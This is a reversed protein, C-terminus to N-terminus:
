NGGSWKLFDIASKIDFGRRGIQKIINELLEVKEQQLAIKLNTAIIEPDGDLYMPVETKIIMGRPPHEWGLAQSEKSPGLTYFEYKLLKLRKAEQEYKRLLLREESYMKMYKAHLKSTKISQHALDTIDIESDVAWIEHIEDLKM